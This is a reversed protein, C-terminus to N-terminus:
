RGHKRSSEDAIGAKEFPTDGYILGVTFGAAQLHRVILKLTGVFNSWVVIKEGKTNIERRDVPRGSRAPIELSDYHKITDAITIDSEVLNEQYETVATSLLSSYSVCQRLRIMRGRRLKVLLDFNKFFDTMSAASVRDLISDYIVREHRNM